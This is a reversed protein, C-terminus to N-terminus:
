DLRKRGLRLFTAETGEDLGVHYGAMFSAIIVVAQFWPIGAGKLVPKPYEKKQEKVLSDVYEFLVEKKAVEETKKVLHEVATSNTAPGGHNYRPLLQPASVSLARRVVMGMSSHIMAM